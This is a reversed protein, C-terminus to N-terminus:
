ARKRAREDSEHLRLIEMKFAMATERCQEEYVLWHRRQESYGMPSMRPVTVAVLYVPTQGGPTRFEIIGDRLELAERIATTSEDPSRCSESRLPEACYFCRGIARAQWDSMIKESIIRDFWRQRSEPPPYVTGAPLLKSLWYRCLQADAVNQCFLELRLSSEDIDPLQKRMRDLVTDIM